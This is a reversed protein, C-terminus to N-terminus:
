KRGIAMIHDSAGILSTEAEMKELLCLFIELSKKDEIIEKLSSFGWCPGEIGLLKVDKFNARALEKALEDPLHCYISFIGQEGLPIDQKGVVLGEELLKSIGKKGLQNMQVFHIFPAFRSIGAALLVGGPKLIRYAEQLAKDRDEKEQLHYLPGLYLVVDAVSDEVKLERADGVSVSALRVGTKKIREKAQEIHLPTLDILHVSYGQKTLPFAYVGAGGGVDYIVAPAKPMHRKLISETRLREVINAPEKYLREEEGSWRSYYDKVGDSKKVRDGKKM